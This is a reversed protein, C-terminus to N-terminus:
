LDGFRNQLIALATLAATETRLIRPGLKFGNFGQQDAMKVEEESFGGESGVLLTLADVSETMNLRRDLHPHLIVRHVGLDTNIWDKLAVPQRVLPIRARGSQECASIVIQQWHQHKKELRKGSLQVGCRESFLPTIQTVGLEVAKQITLDMKDGRSIVQGLHVSLPSENNVPQYSTVKVAVSKKSLAQIVGSYELGDGNFLTVEDAEKMRLVNVAHHAPKEDLDISEDVVLKRTTYLRIVRM